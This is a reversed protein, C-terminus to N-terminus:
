PLWNPFLRTGPAKYEPTTLGFNLGIPSFPDNQDVIGNGDADAFTAPQDVWAVFDQPAWEMSPNTPRSRGAPVMQEPTWM